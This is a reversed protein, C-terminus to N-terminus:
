SLRRKFIKLKFDKIEDLNFIYLCAFYTIICLPLVIFCIISALIKGEFYGAFCERIFYGIACMIISSLMIKLLSINFISLKAIQRKFFYQLAIFQSISSILGAVALGMVGFKFMLAFSLVINVIFVFVSVRLPTKTNHRSYFARVALTSFSVFPLGCAGIILVPVCTRVDEISFNKWQFLMSLIEESFLSLGMCAPISIAMIAIMAKSYQRLYEEINGSINISALKPFYVTAVAITFIGLPLEILRQSIYLISLASEEIFFGFSKSLLMNIQVISAGLLAPIFLALLAGLEPSYSMDFKFRWGKKYMVGVPLALQILGGVIVGGCLFFAIGEATKTIFAGLLLSTIMSINLAIAGLSPVGFAGLVNAASVVLAALCIFFSYPMMLLTLLSAISFRSDTDIYIYCLWCILVAVLSLGLLFVGARSLVKNLFDYASDLGKQEKEQTFIPVLASTLAGEGMLRRLLNPLTFAFLFASNIGSLGLYALMLVDRVLGFIRSGITSFILKLVNKLSGM